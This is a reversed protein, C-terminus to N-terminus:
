CCRAAAASRSWRASRSLCPQGISSISPLCCARTRTSSDDSPEITVHFFMPPAGCDPTIASAVTVSMEMTLDDDMKARPAGM